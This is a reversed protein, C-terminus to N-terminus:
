EIDIIWKRFQKREEPSADLYLSQLKIFKSNTTKELQEYDVLNGDSFYIKNEKNYNAVLAPIDAYPFFGKKAPLLALQFDEIEKDQDYVIFWPSSKELASVVRKHKRSILEIEIESNKDIDLTLVYPKTKLLESSTGTSLNGSFSFVIQNEGDKLDYHSESSEEVEQGNITHVEFGREVFLQAAQVTSSVIVFLFIFFSKMNKVM